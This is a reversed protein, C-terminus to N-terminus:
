IYIKMCNQGNTKARARCVTLCVSMKKFYYFRTWCMRFYAFGNFIPLRFREGNWYKRRIYFYNNSSFLSSFLSILLFYLSHSIKMNNSVNEFQLNVILLIIFYNFKKNIQRKTSLLFLYQLAHWKKTTWKVIMRKEVQKWQM